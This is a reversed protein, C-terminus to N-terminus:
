DELENGCLKLLDAVTEARTIRDPSILVGVQEDAFAMFTVVALSDWGEIQLVRDTEHISNPELELADEM